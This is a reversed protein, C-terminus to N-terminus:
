KSFGCCKSVIVENILPYYVHTPYNEKICNEFELCKPVSSKDPYKEFCSMMDAKIRKFIANDKNAKNFLEEFDSPSKLDSCNGEFNERRQYFFYVGIALIAVILLFHRHKTTLRM